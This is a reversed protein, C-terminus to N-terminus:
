LPDKQPEDQKLRHFHEASVPLHAPQLYSRYLYKGLYLAAPTEAKAQSVQQQLFQQFQLESSSALQQLLRQYGAFFDQSLHQKLLRLQHPQQQQLFLWAWYSWRYTLDLSDTYRTAFIQELSPREEAKTKALLARAKDNHQGKAILEALGESWWVMQAPFHEFPGYSVFRGDLYHIYEHELNWVAFDQQWFHQFSFFRAQNDPDSPTGEIYMGGNNTHINFLLSGYLNYDSYHDFIVVELQQNLDNAVPQQQTDLLSHFQHELGQLQECSQKLQSETINKARIKLRESCHYNLPLAQTLDPYLCQGAFEQECNDRVRFSNVLYLQSFLQKQETPSLDKHQQLLALVQQDLQKQEAEPMLPHLYALTWLLHQLQWGQSLPASQLLFSAPKLQLLARALEPDSRGYYLGFALSRIQEWWSYHQQLEGSLILEQQLLPLLPKLQEPWLPKLETDPYFRYLLVAYHEQLRWGPLKSQSFEPQQSLQQLLQHLLKLEAASMETVAHQYSLHRLQQLAPTLGSESLPNQQLSQQLQQLAPYFASHNQAQVLHPWASWCCLLFFVFTHFKMKPNMM